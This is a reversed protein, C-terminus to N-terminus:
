QSQRHCRQRAKTYTDPILVKYQSRVLVFHGTPSRRVGCPPYQFHRPFGGSPHKTNKEVMGTDHFPRFLQQPGGLPSCFIYRYKIRFLRCPLPSAIVWRPNRALIVRPTDKRYRKYPPTRRLGVRSLYAHRSSRALDQPLMSVTRKADKSSVALDQPLMSVTRKADKSSM